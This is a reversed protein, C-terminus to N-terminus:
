LPWKIKELNERFFGDIFERRCNPWMEPHEKAEADILSQAEWFRHKLLSPNKGSCAVIWRVNLRWQLVFRDLAGQHLSQTLEEEEHEFHEEEAGNRAQPIEPTQGAGSPLVRGAYRWFLLAAVDMDPRGPLMGVSNVPLERWGASSFRYHLTSPISGPKFGLREAAEHPVNAEGEKFVVQVAITPKSTKLSLSMRKNASAGLILRKGDWFANLLRIAECGEPENKPFEADAAPSKEKWQHHGPLRDRFGQWERSTMRSHALFDVSAMPGTRLWASASANASGWFVHVHKGYHFAYIKAHLMEYHRQVDGDETDNKPITLDYYRNCGTIPPVKGNEMSTYFCVEKIELAARLKSILPTPDSNLPSLIDLRQIPRKLQSTVRQFLQGDCTSCIGGSEPPPLAQLVEDLEIRKTVIRQRSLSALFTGVNGLISRDEISTDEFFQWCELNAGMGGRTFNASGIGVSVRDNALLLLMKPHFTGRWNALWFNYEERKPQTPPEGSVVDVRIGPRSLVAAFRQEFVQPDFQFTLVLM